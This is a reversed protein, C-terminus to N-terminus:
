SHVQRTRPEACSNRIVLEPKILIRALASASPAKRIMDILLAVSERGIRDTPQRVTTLAPRLYAAIKIDDFGIVSLDRPVVYGMDVAAGLAGVAMTDDAAFIATPPDALSLLSKTATYGGQYTNEFAEISREFGDDSRASELQLFAEYREKLDGMRGPHVMSIRQHGLQHLYEIAMTVGLRNDVCVCSMGSALEESGRCVSVVQRDRGITALFVQDEGSPSLDGLLLLGDTHRFDPVESLALAEAPDSHAYGLAVEFGEENAVSSMVETLSAFFPDDVERVILGLLRTGKGRLARAFRHPQYRLEEAASIVRQRTQESISVATAADSLVRSVTSESVEALQAVDRITAPRSTSM